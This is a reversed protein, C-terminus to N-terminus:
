KIEFVGLCCARQRIILFTKFFLLTKLGVLVHRIMRTLNKERERKFITQYFLAITVDRSIIKKKTPIIKANM